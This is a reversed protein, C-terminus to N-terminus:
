LSPTTARSPATMSATMNGAKEPTSDETSLVTLNRSLSFVMSIAFLKLENSTIFFIGNMSSRIHKCKSYKIVACIKFFLHFKQSLHVAKWAHECGNMVLFLTSNLNFTGSPCKCDSLSIM